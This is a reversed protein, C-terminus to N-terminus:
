EKEEWGVVIQTGGGPHSQIELHAGIAAARERMIGLGLHEPSVSRPDFGCGDDSILLKVRGPQSVLRVEVQSAEAHKVVNNLAEQAIRYLAVHVDAPLGEPEEATLTVSIGERGTIAQASARFPM